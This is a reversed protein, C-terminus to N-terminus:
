GGDWLADGTADGEDGRRAHALAARLWAAGRDERLQQEDPPAALLSARLTERLSARM